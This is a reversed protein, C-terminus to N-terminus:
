GFSSGFFGSDGLAGKNKKTGGLAGFNQSDFAAHAGGKGKDGMNLGGMVFDKGAYGGGWNSSLGGLGMGSAGGAGRGTKSKKLGKQLVGSGAMTDMEELDKQHDANM